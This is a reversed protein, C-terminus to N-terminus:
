GEVRGYQILCWAFGVLGAAALVEPFLATLRGEILFMSGIGAAVM